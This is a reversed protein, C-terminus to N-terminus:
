DAYGELWVVESAISGDAALDIVRYGPPRDDAAFDHRPRFQTCTSPTCMFRVDGARYLDLAQHAHGWCVGRVRPHRAVTASLERGDLLGLEDLSPSDMPVPPHHLFVFANPEAGAELACELAELQTAGLRGEGDASEAFWSELLLVQWGNATRWEGGVQFPAHCLRRRMEDPLDHNGPILLVPVGLAGFLLDVTGYAAPEDHVIDGTLIVADAPFYHRRAHALCAQLRPLSRAGRLSGAPDSLLHTDSFQVIRTGPGNRRPASRQAPLPAPRSAATMTTSTTM